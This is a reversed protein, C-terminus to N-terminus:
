HQERTTWEILRVLIKDVDADYWGSSHISNFELFKISNDEMRVVDMVVCPEPIFVNALAQAQSWLSDSGDIRQKYYEGNALYQSIEVIQGGVIWCRYEAEIKQVPSVICQLEPNVPRDLAAWKESTFVSANFAKDYNNPRVHLPGEVELLALVNEALVIRAGVNLALVGFREIWYDTGWRVDTSYFVHERLSTSLLQRIMQVSGYPIVVDFEAWDVGCEDACFDMGGSRDILTVHDENRWAWRAVPTTLNLVYNNQVLLAVKM